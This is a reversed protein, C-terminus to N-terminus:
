INITLNRYAGTSWDQGTDVWQSGVGVDDVVKIDGLWSFNLWATKLGQSPSQAIVRYDAGFLGSIAVDVSVSYEGSALPGLDPSFAGVTTGVDLGAHEDLRLHQTGGAPNAGSIVPQTTNGAYYSWGGQFGIFGTSFGEAPEFGTTYLVTGASAVPEGNAGAEESARSISAESIGVVSAEPKVAGSLTERLTTELDATLSTPYVSLLLRQELRELFLFPRTERGERRRPM